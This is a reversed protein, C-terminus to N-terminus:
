LALGYSQFLAANYYIVDRLFFSALGYISGDIGKLGDLLSSDLPNELLKNEKIELDLSKLFNGGALTQYLSANRIVVVDPQLEDFARRIREEEVMVTGQGQLLQGYSLVRFTW